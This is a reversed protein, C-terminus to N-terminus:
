ALRGRKWPNGGGEVQKSMAKTYPTASEVRGEVGKLGEVGNRNPKSWSRGAEVHSKTSPTGSEVRGEVMKSGVEIPNRGGEVQKSMAKKHLPHWKRGQRRGGKSGMEIPNRGDEVVKSRSEVWNRGM